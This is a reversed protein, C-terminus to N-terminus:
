SIMRRILADTLKQIRGVVWVVIWGIWAVPWFFVKLPDTSSTDWFAEKARYIDEEPQLRLVSRSNRIQRARRGVIVIYTPWMGLLWVLPALAAIASM